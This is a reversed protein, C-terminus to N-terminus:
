ENNKVGQRFNHRQTISVIGVILGAAILNSVHFPEEMWLWAATLTVFPQLLQLQSIRTIGGLALSHYWLFFGLLQSIFALYLFGLWHTTSVTQWTEGLQWLFVPLTLPLTFVLAWCIVEWGPLSNALRGGLAYGLAASIAALALLGDGLAPKWGQNPLMMYVILASGALSALWFGRPPRERNLLAGFLATLLPLIGLVVGAHSAAVQQMAWASFLPFGLVVGAAIALLQKREAPGPLTKGYCALIGIATIGAVAARGPGVLLPPMTHAITRTVPITLGFALIAALGATLGRKRNSALPQAPIQQAM